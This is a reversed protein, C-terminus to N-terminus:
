KKNKKVMGNKVMLILTGVVVTVLIILLVNWSIIENQVLQYLLFFLGVITSPLGVALGMVILFKQSSTKEKSM